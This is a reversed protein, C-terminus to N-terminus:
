VSLVHEHPALHHGFEFLFPTLDFLAFSHLDMDVREWDVFEFSHGHFLKQLSFVGLDWSNKRSAFIRVNLDDIHAGVLHSLINQTVVHFNQLDWSEWSLIGAHLKYDWLIDFFERIM